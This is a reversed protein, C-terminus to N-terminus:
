WDDFAEVEGFALAEGQGEDEAQAAYGADDGQEAQLGEVGDGDGFVYAPVVGHCGEPAVEFDL